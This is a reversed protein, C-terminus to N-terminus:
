PQSWLWAGGSWPVYAYIGTSNRDLWALYAAGVGLFLAVPAGGLYGTIAAGVGMLFAITATTNHDYGKRYGWWYYTTSRDNARTPMVSLDPNFRIKGAKVEANVGELASSAFLRAEDSLKPGRTPREDLALTGDVQLALHKEIAPIMAEMRTRQAENSQIAARTGADVQTLDFSEQTAAPPAATPATASLTQGGGCGMTVLSLAALSVTVIKFGTVKM